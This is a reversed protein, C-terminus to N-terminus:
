LDEIEENNSETQLRGKYQLSPCVRHNHWEDLHFISQWGHQSRGKHNGAPPVLQGTQLHQRTPAKHPSHLLPCVFGGLKEWAKKLNFIFIIYYTVLLSFHNGLYNEKRIIQKRKKHISTNSWQLCLLDQLLNEIFRFTSLIIKHRNGPLNQFLLNREFRLCKIYM